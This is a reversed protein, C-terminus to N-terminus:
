DVRRLGGDREESLTVDHGQRLDATVFEKAEDRPLHTKLLEEGSPLKTKVTFRRMPKTAELVINHTHCSDFRREHQPTTAMSMARTEGPGDDGRGECGHKGADAPM